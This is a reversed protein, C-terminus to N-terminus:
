NTRMTSSYFTYNCWQHQHDFIPYWQLHHWNQPLYLLFPSLCFIFSSSCISVIYELNWVRTNFRWIKLLLYIIFTLFICSVPTSNHQIKRTKKKQTNPVLWFIILVFESIPDSLLPIYCVCLYLSLSFSCIYRGDRNNSNNLKDISDLIYKYSKHSTFFQSKHSKLSKM